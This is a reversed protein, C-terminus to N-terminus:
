EVGLGSPRRQKGGAVQRCSLERGMGEDCCCPRASNRGLVDINDKLLVPIGTLPGHDGALM